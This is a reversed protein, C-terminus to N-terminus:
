KFSDISSIVRSFPVDIYDKMHSDDLDNKWSSVNNM